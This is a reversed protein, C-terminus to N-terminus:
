DTYIMVSLPSQFCASHNKGTLILLIFNIQRKFVYNTHIQLLSSKTEIFIEMIYATMERVKREMFNLKVRLPLKPTVCTMEHPLHVFVEPYFHTPPTSSCMLSASLAEM